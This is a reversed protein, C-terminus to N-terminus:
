ANVVGRPLEGGVVSEGVISPRVRDAPKGRCGMPHYPAAMASLM